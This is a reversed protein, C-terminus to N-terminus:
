NYKSNAINPDNSEPGWATVILYGGKVTQLVIPDDKVLNIGSVRMGKTNLQDKSAIILLNIAPGYTDQNNYDKYDFKFNIIEKQNSEPIEGIFRSVDTLLLGYKKCIKEVCEHTIFRQLYKSSYYLVNDRTKTAVAKDNLLKLKSLVSKESSFGLKFLEEFNTKDDIEKELIENSEKLLTDQANYIEEHILEIVQNNSYEDFTNIHNFKNLLSRM